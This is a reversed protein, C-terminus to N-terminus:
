WDFEDLIEVDESNSLNVEFYILTGPFNFDVDYVKTSGSSKVLLANGSFIRAADSGDLINSLGFGRNRETSRVTFNDQIAKLLAEKDTTVKSDYDRVSKVIGIGFDSIAVYLKHSEEDYKVISFANNEAKAHDFVNYFAEALNNSIYSLDKGKFYNQKFYEEVKKSYIDKETDVIRWLNFINDSNDAEVHNKGKSFYESFKLDIYIYNYLKENRTTDIYVNNGEDMLYQIMNALTVLHFPYLDELKIKPSFSITYDKGTESYNSVENIKQLWSRKESSDFLIEQKEKNDM